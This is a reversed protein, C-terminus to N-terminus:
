GIAVVESKATERYAQTRELAEAMDSEEVIAYRRFISDTEHGSIKMAVAQPVGARIM